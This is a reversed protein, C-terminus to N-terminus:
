MSRRVARRRLMVVSGGTLVLLGLVLMGFESVTPVCPIVNTCPTDECDTRGNCDNDLNDTCLETAGPNVANNNNDCDLAAGNPCSANGPNGYGDSDTDVCGAANVSGTQGAYNTPTNAGNTVFTHTIFNTMQLCNVGNTPLVAAGYIFTDYNFAPAWRITDGNIAFFNSAIIHDPTPAGPLAAFAATAFLIHRNATNGVVNSPITYVSGNVQSTMTKGALGNEGTSGASEKLEIFQVTGDANTFIENIKWLHSAAMAPGSCLVSAGGIAWMWLSTRNLRIM